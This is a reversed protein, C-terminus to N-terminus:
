SLSKIYFCRCLYADQVILPFLDKRFLKHSFTCKLLANPDPMKLRNWCSSVSVDIRQFACYINIANRTYQARARSNRSIGLYTFTLHLYVFSFCSMTLSTFWLIISSVVAIVGTSRMPHFFCYSCNGFPIRFCNYFTSLYRRGFKSNEFAQRSWHGDKEELLILVKQYWTLLHDKENSCETIKKTKFWVCIVNYRM